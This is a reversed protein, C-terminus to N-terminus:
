ANKRKREEDRRDSWETLAIQERYRKRKKALNAAGSVSTLTWGGLIVLYGIAVHRTPFFRSLFLCLLSLIVTGSVFAEANRLVFRFTPEKLIAIHKPNQDAESVARQSAGEIQNRPNSPAM